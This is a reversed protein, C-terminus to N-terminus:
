VFLSTQLSKGSYKREHELLWKKRWLGGGYGVLSGNEGIVRHCPVIIALGNEGNARAVARIAKVDGLFVSQEKYSRTAAYPIQQLGNWVKQQFPTGLLQLPLDFEKRSGEFYEKMQHELVKFHNHEGERTETNLLRTVRNLIENIMRRYEFDFICIGEDTAAALM